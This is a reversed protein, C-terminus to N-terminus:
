CSMTSHKFYSTNSVRTQTDISVSVGDVTVSVDRDKFNVCDEGFMDSHVILGKKLDLFSSEAITRM